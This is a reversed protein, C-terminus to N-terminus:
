GVRTKMEDFLREARRCFGNGTAMVARVAPPSGGSGSRCSTTWASTPNIDPNMTLTVIETM